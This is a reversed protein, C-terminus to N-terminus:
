SSDPEKYREVFPWRQGKVLVQYMDRLRVGIIRSISQYVRYGIHYDTEFLARLETGSILVTHSPEKCIASMVYLHPGVLASWGFFDGTTIRDVVVQTAAQGPRPPVEMVLDVLGEKLVHLYKAEDGAKLIVEGPQYTKEQCSPLAVIKSLASDELELFVESRQLIQEIGM